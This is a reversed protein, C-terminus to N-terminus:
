VKIFCVKEDDELKSQEEFKEVLAKVKEGPVKSRKTATSTSSKTTEAQKKSSKQSSSPVNEQNTKKTAPTQVNDSIVDLIGESGSSDTVDEKKIKVISEEKVPPPKVKKKVPEEKEVVEEKKEKESIITDNSDETKPEPKPSNIQVPTARDKDRILSRGRNKKVNRPHAVMTCGLKRNFEEFPFLFRFYAQKVLNLTTASNKTFGLRATVARWRNKNTVSNYGGLKEVIRFFRYLDVDRNCIIPGKNLPTGRDDM